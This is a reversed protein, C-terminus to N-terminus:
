YPAVLGALILGDLPEEPAQWDEDEIDAHVTPIPEFDELPECIADFQTHEPSPMQPTKM